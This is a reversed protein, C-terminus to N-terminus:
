LLHIAIIIALMIDLLHSAHKGASSTLKEATPDDSCQIAATTGEIWLPVANSPEGGNGAEDVARITLYYLGRETNPITMLHQLTVGYEAEPTTDITDSYLQVEPDSFRHRILSRNRFLKLEYSSAVGTDFDDGVATWQVVVIQDYTKSIRLDTVKSPPYPDEQGCGSLVEFSAPGAQRLFEGTPIQESWPFASGCCNSSPGKLVVPNDDFGGKIKVIVNYFGESTFNTFYHSYIGDNKTIDINGFGDDVLPIVSVGGNSPHTVYAVVTANRIPYNGKRVEAYIQIPRPSANFPLVETWVRATIPEESSVRSGYVSVLVPSKAGLKRRTKLTYTGIEPNEIHLDWSPVIERKRLPMARGQPDILKTNGYALPILQFCPGFNLDEFRQFVKTWFFEFWINDEDLTNLYEQTILLNSSYGNSQVGELLLHKEQELYQTTTLIIAIPSSAFSNNKTRVIEIIDSMVCFVCSNEENLPEEPLPQGELYSTRSEDDGVVFHPTIITTVNDNGGFTVVTLESGSPLLTTVFHSFANKVLAYRNEEKMRSSIDVAVLVRPAEIERMFQFEPASNAPLKRAKNRGCTFDTSRLVTFWTGVENCLLNHKTPSEPNHNPGLSLRGECFLTASNPLNQDMLSSLLPEKNCRGKCEEKCRLECQVGCNEQCERRCVQEEDCDDQLQKPETRCGTTKNAEEGPMRYEAPYKEDGEFGSEPFVGYRFESWLRVFERGSIKQRNVLLSNVPIYIRLAEKGCGGQHLTYPRDNSSDATIVVDAYERRYVAEVDKFPTNNAGRYWTQIDGWSRPVLFTTYRFFARGKTSTTLVSSSEQLLNKINNVVAARDRPLTNPDLAILLDNYGNSTLKINTANVSYLVSIILVSVFFAKEM